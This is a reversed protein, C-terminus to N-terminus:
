APAGPAQGDPGGDRDGDPRFGPRGGASGGAWVGAQRGPRSGRDGLPAAASRTHAPDVQRAWPGARRRRGGARRRRRRRSRGHARCRPRAPHARRHPQGPAAHTLGVALQALGRWLERQAEPGTKWADELVEHAHFAARRRAAGAGAGADAGPRARRRRRGRSGRRGTRCRGAWATVRGRAEPGGRTTGTRADDDGWEVLLHGAPTRVGGRTARTRAGPAGQSTSSPGGRCTAGAGVRPRGDVPGSRSPTGRGHVVCGSCSTGSAPTSVRGPARRPATAAGLGAPRHTQLEFACRTRGPPVPRGPDTPASIGSDDVHQGAARPAAPDGELGATLDLERAARRVVDGRGHRAAPRCRRAARPAPRRRGRGRVAPCRGAAVAARTVGAGSGPWPAASRRPPTGPAAPAAM